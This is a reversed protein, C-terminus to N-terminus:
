TGGGEIYKEFATRLADPWQQGNYNLLVCRYASFDPNWAAWAEKAANEPPSNSEVVRLGAQRSFLAMLFANSKQWDHNNQGGILLVPIQGPAAEQAGAATAAITLALAGLLLIPLLRHM